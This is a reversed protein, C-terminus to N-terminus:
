ARLIKEIKEAKQTPNVLASLVGENFYSGAIKNVTSNVSYLVSKLPVYAVNEPTLEKYDKIQNRIYTSRDKTTRTVMSAIFEMIEPNDGVNSNAHKKATDFLRGLDDYEVYWPVKGKFVLENLIPYIVEDKKVLYTTKFLVQNAEFYFEYYDTEDITKITTKLPDLEIYACINIVSYIGDDFIVPFLGYAFNSLGVGGLKINTEAWRVPIQIVCAMTTFLRNEKDKKLRKLVIDKDRKLKTM